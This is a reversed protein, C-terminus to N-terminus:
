DRIVVTLNKDESDASKERSVQFNKELKIESVSNHEEEHMVNIVKRVTLKDDESDVSIGLHGSINSRPTTNRSLFSM